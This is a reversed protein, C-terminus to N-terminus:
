FFLRKPATILGNKLFQGSKIVVCLHSWYNFREQIYKKLWIKKFFIRQSNKHSTFRVKLCNRPLTRDPKNEEEFVPHTELGGVVFVVNRPEVNSNEDRNSNESRNRNENRIRNQDLNGSENHNVDSFDDRALSNLCRSSRKTALMKMKSSVNPLPPHAFEILQSKVQDPQLDKFHLKRNKPQSSSRIFYTLIFTLRKLAQSDDSVLVTKM